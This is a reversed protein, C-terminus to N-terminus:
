ASHAGAVQEEDGAAGQGLGGFLPRSGAELDLLWRKRELGGGYGVLSGAAGIVRHCPIVIAIPNSGNAAGVARAANPRGLEAALAGYSTTTGYSVERLAQWVSQQFPTGFPELPLDFDRLAGAFYADLQRAAEDLVDDSPEDARSWAAPLALETVARGNGVLLLDGIPSPVVKMSVPMM